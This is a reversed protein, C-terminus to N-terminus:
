FSDWYSRAGSGTCPQLIFFEMGNLTSKVVCYDPPTTATNIGCASVGFISLLALVRM